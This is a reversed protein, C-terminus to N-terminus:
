APSAKILPATFSFFFKSQMVAMVVWPDLRVPAKFLYMADTVYVSDNPDFILEITKTTTLGIIKPSAFIIPNRPRHLSWWPHKEARVEPCTNLRRFKKLHELVNPFQKIKTERSTYIILQDIKWEQYRKIQSGSMSSRLLERELGEELAMAKSIVHAEALDPTVGRQIGDQIFSGLSKHKERMRALLETFRADTVFFTLHSDREVLAKWKSWTTTPQSSLGMERQELPLRSLDYLVFPEDTRKGSILISSTNLM